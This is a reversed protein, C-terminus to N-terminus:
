RYLGRAMIRERVAWPLLRRLVADRRETVPARIWDRIESSSVEPLVSKDSPANEYGSRGMVYLPALRQLEETRHWRSIEPLVDTGVVVNLQWEPHRQLLTEVTSVTYSPRPLESEISSVEVHKLQSFALRCLEIREVYDLLAKDFAHEFVPVVVVREFGAVTVLYAAALVHGVHPPNFSGGYLAVKM